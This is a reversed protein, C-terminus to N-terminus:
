STTSTTLLLPIRGLSLFFPNGTFTDKQMSMRFLVQKTWIKAIEENLLRPGLYDVIDKIHTCYQSKDISGPILITDDMQFM